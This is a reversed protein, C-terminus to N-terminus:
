PKKEDENEYKYEQDQDQDYAYEDIATSMTLPVGPFPM